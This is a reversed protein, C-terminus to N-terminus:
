KSANLKFKHTKLNKYTQSTKKIYTKRSLTGSIFIYFCLMFSCLLDYNFLITKVTLLCNKATIQELRTAM